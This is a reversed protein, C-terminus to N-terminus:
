AEEIHFSSPTCDFKEQNGDAKMPSTNMEEKRYDNVPSGPWSTEQSSFLPNKKKKKLSLENGPLCAEWLHAM